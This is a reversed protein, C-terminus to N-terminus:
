WAWTGGHRKRLSPQATSAGSFSADFGGPGMRLEPKKSAGPTLDTTPLMSAARQVVSEHVQELM